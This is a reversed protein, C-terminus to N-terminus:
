KLSYFKKEDQNLNPIHLNHYLGALTSPLHYLIQCLFRMDASPGLSEIQYIIYGHWQSPQIVTIGVLSKCLFHLSAFHTESSVM